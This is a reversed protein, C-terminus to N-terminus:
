FGVSYIKNSINVTYHSFILLKMKNKYIFLINITLVM